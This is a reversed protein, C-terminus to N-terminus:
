CYQFNSVTLINKILIPPLYLNTSAVWIKTKLTTVPLVIPPYYMKIDAIEATIGYGPSNHYSLTAQITETTNESFYLSVSVLLYIIVFCKM